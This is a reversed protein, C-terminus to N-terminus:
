RGFGQGPSHRLRWPATRFQKLRVWTFTAYSSPLWCSAQQQPFLDWRCRPRAPPSATSTPKPFSEAVVPGLLLEVDEETLGLERAYATRREGDLQRMAAIREQVIANRSPLPNHCKLCATGAGLDFISAKASLGDTSGGVILQPLGNQLAHRPDNKDVCSLVIPFKYAQEFARVDDNPAHKGGSTAFTQWWDSVAKCDFGVSRLYRQMLGVKSEGDDERTSLAYRNDNTLDLEDKDVVSCSGAFRSTGLCLAAAQAVAGAGAFYFHPLVEFQEASPGDILEAWTDACSMTWSSAFHARIFEGKGPKM